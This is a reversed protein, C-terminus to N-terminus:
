RKTGRKSAKIPNLIKGEPTDADTEILHRNDNFLQDPDLGLQLLRHYIVERPIGYRNVDALKRDVRDRTTLYLGNRDIAVLKTSGNDDITDIVMKVSTGYRNSM